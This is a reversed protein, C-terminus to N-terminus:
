KLVVENITDQVAKEWGSIREKREESNMAPTFVRYRKLNPNNAGTSHVMIGIPTIEKGAKYCENNTAFRSYLKM